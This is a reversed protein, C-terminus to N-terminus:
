VDSQTGHPLAPDKQLGRPLIQERMKEVQKEQSMAGEETKFALLVVDELTERRRVGAKTM